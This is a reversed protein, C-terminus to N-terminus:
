IGVRRECAPGLRARCANRAIPLAHHRSNDVQTAEPFQYQSITFEGMIQGSQARRDGPEIQRVRWELDRDFVAFHDIDTHAAAVCIEDILRGGFEPVAQCDIRRRRTVLTEGAAGALAQFNRTVDLRDDRGIM